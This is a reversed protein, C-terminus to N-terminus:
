IPLGGITARFQATARYAQGDTDKVIDLTEHNCMVLTYPSLRIRRECWNVLVRVREMIDKIMAESELGTHLELLFVSQQGRSTDDDWPETRTENFVIYPLPDKESPSSFLPVEGGFYEKLDADAKLMIGIERELVRSASPM